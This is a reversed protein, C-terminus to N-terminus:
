YCDLGNDFYMSVLDDMETICAQQAADDLGQMASSRTVETGSDDVYAAMHACNIGDTVYTQSASVLDDFFIVDGSPTDLFCIDAPTYMDVDELVVGAWCPCTMVEPEDRKNPDVWGPMGPDDLSTGAKKMFNALIQDRANEDANHWAVCLGYLAPVYDDLNRDKLNKCASADANGALVQGSFISLMLAFLGLSIIKRM